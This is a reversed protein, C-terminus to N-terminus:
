HFKLALWWPWVVLITFVLGASLNLAAKQALRRAQALLGGLLLGSVFGGLHARVDTSPDTGLLIFLMVGGVIGSLVYKARRPGEQRYALSQAALLGVCGMVMGSAGLSGPSGSSVLWVLLNGGAGAVYAALLGIGTGYRGLVLGLLVFGISANAALHALDAHLWMATWLRWWQGHSVARPDLVGIDRLDFLERDLWFFVGLLLVWPLSAWDFLVEPQFIQRQWPWHRNELQYLRIAEIAKDYDAGAVVLGWGAGNEGHEIVSEIGQSVLVLSWDMAQRRSRTSIRVSASDMFM